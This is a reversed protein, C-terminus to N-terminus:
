DCQRVVQAPLTFDEFHVVVEDGQTLVIGYAGPEDVSHGSGEEGLLMPMQHCTSKFVTVSKRRVSATITRHIHGSFIHAVNANEMLDWFAERDQLAIRDMGSFGSLFPPHHLFVLSPRDTALAQQLWGLRDNCLRGSHPPDSDQQLTDLTVIRVDELDTVTQVFGNEDVVHDPFRRRFESRDDHNGIMLTVPWPVDSLAGKLAEYAEPEGANTLDGMLVLRDADAHVRAAHILGSVMRELPDLGIIRAGPSALHLDTMVLLKAM